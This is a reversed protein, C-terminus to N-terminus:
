TEKWMSSLIHVCFSITQQSSWLWLLMKNNSTFSVIGQHRFCMTAIKLEEYMPNYAM